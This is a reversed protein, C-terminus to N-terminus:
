TMASRLALSGRKSGPQLVFNEDLRGQELPRRGKFRKGRRQASRRLPPLQFINRFHPQAVNGQKHLCCKINAKGNARGPVEWWGPKPQVAGKIFSRVFFDEKQKPTPPSRQPSGMEDRKKNREVVHSENQSHVKLMPNAQYMWVLFIQYSIHSM